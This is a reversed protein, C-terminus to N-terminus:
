RHAARPRRSQHGAGHWRRDSIGRAHHRQVEGGSSYWPVANRGDATVRDLRRHSRLRRRTERAPLGRAAARRSGPHARGSRQHREADASRAHPTRHARAAARRETIDRHTGRFGASARGDPGILALLNGELWRYEGDAHRWRAVVGTATRRDSNLGRRARDHSRRRSRGRAHVRQLAHREADDPAVGLMGRVSESSFVYRGGADLEWIWDQATNVIDRLRQESQASASSRSSAAAANRWKACPASCPRCWARPIRRSCTTSPAVACRKSPASRASPAPSSSSPFTRPLRAARHRARGPRRVAPLTFDSLIIHPRFERLASRFSPETDVVTTFAASAMASLQRVALEADDAVDEVILVRLDLPVLDEM